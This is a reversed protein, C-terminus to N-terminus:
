KEKLKLVIRGTGNCSTCVRFTKQRGVMGGGSWWVIKGTGNCRECERSYMNVGTLVKTKEHSEFKLGTVM